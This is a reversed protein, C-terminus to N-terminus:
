FLVMGRDQAQLDWTANWSPDFVVVTHSSTINLGLGGAKTSILFIFKQKQPETNYIDLLNQRDHIPTSGDLRSIRQRGYRPILFAQIRDLLTTKSSFVLVKRGQKDWIDMLLRLTTLKGCLTEDAGAEIAAHLLEKSPGVVNDFFERERLGKDPNGPEEKPIALRLDASADYPGLKSVRGAHPTGNSIKMLNTLTPFLHRGLERFDEGAGCCKAYTKDSLECPCPSVWQLLRAIIQSQMARKYIELQLPSMACFVVNDTKPPLLDKIVSKDRRLVVKKFLVNLRHVVAKRYAIDRFDALQRQGNKIPQIYHVRFQHITGFTGPQVFDLLTHLEEFSLFPPLHSYLLRFSYVAYKNQVVTGTLGFRRPCNLRSLTSALKTKRDKIKHVEDFMIVLWDISNM